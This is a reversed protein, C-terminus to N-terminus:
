SRDKLYDIIDLPTHAVFDPEKEILMEKSQYGWAAALSVMGANKGTMVDYISDGVFLM